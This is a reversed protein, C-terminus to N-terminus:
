ERSALGARLGPAVAPTPPALAVGPGAPQLGVRPSTPPPGVAGPAPLPAVPRAGWARAQVTRVEADRGQDASGPDPAEGARLAKSGGALAASTGILVWAVINGGRIDSM